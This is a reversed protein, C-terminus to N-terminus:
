CGSPEDSVARCSWKRDTIISPAVWSCVTRPSLLDLIQSHLKKMMALNDEVQGFDGMAM